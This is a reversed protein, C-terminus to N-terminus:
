WWLTANNALWTLGNDKFVSGGKFHRYYTNDKTYNIKLGLNIADEYISAGTDYDLVNNIYLMRTKDYFALGHKHILDMNFFCAWPAICKHAYTDRLFGQMVAGSKIFYGVVASFNTTFVIDSDVLLLISSHVYCMLWDITIAHRASNYNGAAPYKSVPLNNIDNYISDDVHKITIPPMDDLLATGEKFTKTESNDFVLVPESYWPNHRRLSHCLAFIYEPTNFNVTAITLNGM